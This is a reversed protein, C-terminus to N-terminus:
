EPQVALHATYCEIWRSQMKVRFDLKTSRTLSRYHQTLATGRQGTVTRAREARFSDRRVRQVTGDPRRSAAQSSRMALVPARLQSLPVARALSKPSDCRLAASYTKLHPVLTGLACGSFRCACLAASAILCSVSPWNSNWSNGFLSSPPSVLM